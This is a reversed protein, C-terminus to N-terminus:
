RSVEQHSDSRLDQPVENRLVIANGLDRSSKVTLHNADFYVPFGHPDYVPCLDQECLYRNTDFFTVGPTREALAQLKANVLRVDDPLPRPQSVCSLFGLKLAKELCRSDFNELRTSKALLIVRQGRDTLGRVSAELDRMFHVSLSDYDTWSAGLVVLPYNVVAPWAVQLSDKCDSRRSLQVFRTIDGLIPPCSGVSFNRFSFGENVAIVELMPVYHAANSDGWLLVKPPHQPNSGVVCRSNILDQATLRQRQCIWDFKTGPEIEGRLQILHSLYSQSHTPFGMRDGFVLLLAALSIAAGPIAFQFSIVKLASGKSRRARQEVFTFSLQALVFTTLVLFLGTTLDPEGYVYRWYALVPWHWLYLSYSLKGVWVMPPWSLCRKVCTDIQSNGALLILTAGLTPLLARWGPFPSAESLLLLSACILVLGCWAMSQAVPARVNSNANIIVWLAAAGGMLLEGMRTPLMYFVFRSNEPQGLEALLVSTPISLLALLLAVRSAPTHSLFTPTLKWLLLLLLPWLLYFQEEVGLSWLHLLPLQASAIAFYGTDTERWFFVNAMSGLSWVASKAMAALDEPLLVLYGTLIVVAIVTLMVPMIRKVRRRYFELLSFNGARLETAINFTILYGSIAFFIDVGTFGGPLVHARVHYSIVALVAIARLGDIDPRYGSRVSSANVHDTM